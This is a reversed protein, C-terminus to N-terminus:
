GSAVVSVVHARTAARQWLRASGILRRASLLVLPVALLVPLRWDDGEATVSFLVALLTTSAALRLSYAAMVGPPAPTDRPGRLDARHPRTVSLHLCTAVVRAVTVTACCALAAAETGTPGSGVRTSGAAV